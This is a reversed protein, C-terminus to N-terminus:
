CSKQLEVASALLSYSANKHPHVADTAIPQKSRVAQKTQKGLLHAENEKGFRNGNAPGIQILPTPNRINGAATDIIFLGTNKTRRTSHSQKRDNCTKGLAM